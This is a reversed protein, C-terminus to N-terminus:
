IMYALEDGKYGVWPLCERAELSSRAAFAASCFFRKMCCRSIEEERRRIVVIREGEGPEEVEDLM